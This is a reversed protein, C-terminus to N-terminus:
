IDRNLLPLDLHTQVWLPQPLIQLLWKYHEPSFQWRSLLDALTNERWPIHCVLVQINFIACILWVNSAMLVLVEDRARGKQLVDVVAMNDCHTRSRKNSWHVAWVKLALVINLLELHVINYNNYNQPMPLASVMYEFSAGLGSLCADLHVETHCYNTDYYTM